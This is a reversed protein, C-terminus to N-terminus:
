EMGYGTGYAYRAMVFFFFRWAASWGGLSAEAAAEGVGAVVAAVSSAGAATLFSPFCVLVLFGEEGKRGEDCNTIHRLLYTHQSDPAGDSAGWHGGVKGYRLRLGRHWARACVWPSGLWM